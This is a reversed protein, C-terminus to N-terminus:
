FGLNEKVLILHIREPNVEKNIILVKSVNSGEVGYAKRARDAELPLVYDYIRKMGAEIDTVIKQAGVVWIVNGAGYAYAPLQSGTNSAILVHGDKTVAHVSGIAYDPAAGMQRMLKSDTEKTLKEFTNKVAEYKGSNLIMDQIGTEALTVSTMDIVEAHEPLLSAVKEKAEKKTEVIIANMGNEQLKKVTQELDDDTPLEKWTNM